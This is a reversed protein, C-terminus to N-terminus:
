SSCLNYMVGHGPCPGYEQALKAIKDQYAEMDIAELRKLSEEIAEKKTGGQTISLGSRTDVVFWTKVKNYSTSATKDTARYVALDFGLTNPVDFGERPMYGVKINGDIKDVYRCLSYFKKKSM